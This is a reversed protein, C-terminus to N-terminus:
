CMNLTIEPLTKFTKQFFDRISVLTTNIEDFYLLVTVNNFIKVNENEIQIYKFIWHIGIIVFSFKEAAMVGTKLTISYSEESVM